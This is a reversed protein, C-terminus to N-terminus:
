KDWPGAHGTEKAFKEAQEKTYKLRPVAQYDSAWVEQSYRNQNGNSLELVDGATEVWAHDIPKGKDPGSPPVASGHVLFLPTLKWGKEAAFGSAEIKSLELLSEYAVKYCDGKQQNNTSM